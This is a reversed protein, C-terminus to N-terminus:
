IELSERQVGPTECGERVVKVVEDTSSFCGLSPLM